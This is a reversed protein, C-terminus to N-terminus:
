STWSVGSDDAARHKLAQAGCQQRPGLRARNLVHTVRLRVEQSDEAMKVKLNKLLSARPHLCPIQLELVRFALSHDASCSHLPGRCRYLLQAAAFRLSAVGPGLSTTDACVPPAGGAESSSLAGRAGRGRELVRNKNELWNHCVKM